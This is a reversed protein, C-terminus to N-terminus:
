ARSIWPADGHVQRLIRGPQDAGPFGLDRVRPVGRSGPIQLMRRGNGLAEPPILKSEYVSPDEGADDPLPDFLDKLLQALDLLNKELAFLPAFLPDDWDPERRRIRVSPEASLFAVAKTDLDDAAARVAAIRDPVKAFLDAPLGKLNQVRVLAGFRRDRKTRFLRGLARLVSFRTLEESFYSVASSEM